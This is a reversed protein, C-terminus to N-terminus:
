EDEAESPLVGNIASRVMFDKTRERKEIQRLTMSGTLGIDIGRERLLDAVAYCDELELKVREINSLEYKDYKHHSSFRLCKSVAHQVEALEENLCVLLYETKNM